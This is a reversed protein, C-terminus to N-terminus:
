CCHCIFLSINDGRYVVLYLSKNCTFHFIPALKVGNNGPLEGTEGWRHYLYLFGAKLPQNIHNKPDARSSKFRRGGVGWSLM